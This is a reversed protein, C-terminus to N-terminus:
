GASGARADMRPRPDALDMVDADGLSELAGAALVRRVAGFTIVHAITGGLTHAAPPECTTDIFTDGLTGESLARAVFQRYDRGAAQHRAALGAVTQNSEDPWKGGRLASLWHEEQTVMANILRRLSPEDDIGEVSMEITRDLDADDINGAREILTTIGDVHHDVLQQVVDMSTEKHDSPLRIGGPPQFHVGSSAPLELDRFTLPEPGSRLGTPTIGYARGFARTFAEHSSYGAEVAVDLVTEDTRLLRYAARELMLRRRLAGPPEGYTASVLRDFHFRSLYARGALEEADLAPDELCAQALDLIRTYGDANM